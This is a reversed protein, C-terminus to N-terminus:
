NFGQSKYICWGVGILITATFAYGLPGEKKMIAAVLGCVAWIVAMLILLGTYPKQEIINLIEIM